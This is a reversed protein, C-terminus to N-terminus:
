EEGGDKGSSDKGKRMAPPIFSLLKEQIGKPNKGEAIALVGEIVIQKCLVEESSRAKLKNAMPLFVINSLISGYFTTILCVGMNSTLSDMDSLDVLMNILGIVTGLMGFGPAYASGKELLNIGAKHRAMMFGLESEMIDRIEEGEVSDVALQIGKRFFEDKYEALKDELALLGSKRVESAVEVIQDIYDTPVFKQPKFVKAILKPLTIFTKLPFTIMLASFTGGIVIAAGVDNWFSILEGDVLIAFVMFFLAALLGIISMIDM